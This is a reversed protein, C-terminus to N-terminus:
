RHIVATAATSPPVTSSAASRAQKTAFPSPAHGLLATRALDIAVNGVGVVLVKGGAAGGATRPPALFGVVPTIVLAGLSVISFGVAVLFRRRPLRGGEPVAANGGM